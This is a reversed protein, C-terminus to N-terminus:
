SIIAMRFFTICHSLFGIEANVDAGDGRLADDDVPVVVDQSRGVDPGLAVGDARDLPQDGLEVALEQGATREMQEAAQTAM